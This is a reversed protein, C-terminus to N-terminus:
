TTPLNVLFFKFSYIMVVVGAVFAFASFLRLAVLIFRFIEHTRDRINFVENTNENNNQIANAIKFFRSRNRSITFESIVKFIILTILGIVFCLTGYIQFKNAVGKAQMIGICATVAGANSLWLHNVLDDLSKSEAQTVKEYYDQKFLDFKEKEDDTLESYTKNLTIPQM